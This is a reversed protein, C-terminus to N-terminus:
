QPPPLDAAMLWMEAPLRSSFAGVESGHLKARLRQKSQKDPTLIAVRDGPQYTRHCETLVYDDIGMDQEDATSLDSLVRVPEGNRRKQAVIERMARFHADLEARTWHGSSRVTIIGDPDTLDREIM